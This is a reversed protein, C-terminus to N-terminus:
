ERQVEMQKKVLAQRLDDLSVEGARYRKLVGDFDPCCETAIKGDLIDQLTKDLDHKLGTGIGTEEGM